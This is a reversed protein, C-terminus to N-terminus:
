GLLDPSILWRVRWRGAANRELCLVAAKRLPLPPRAARASGALLHGALRGLQPEHGVLALQGGPLKLRLALEAIAGDPVLAEVEILPADPVVKRALFKATQRARRYPSHWIEEPAFDSVTRLFKGLRKLQSRGKASLARKPDPSGKKAHAHRILYLRM